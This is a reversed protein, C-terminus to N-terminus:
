AFNFEAFECSDDTAGDAVINGSISRRYEFIKDIGSGVRKLYEQSTERNGNQVTKTIINEQIKRQNRDKKVAEVVWQNIAGYHSKYYNAKKNLLFNSLKDVVENCFDVGYKQVLTQVENDSLFVNNHEGHIRKDKEKKASSKEKEKKTEELQKKLKENEFVLDNLEIENSIVKVNDSVSVSDNVNDSVSVNDNDAVNAVDQKCITANAVNAQKQQGGKAGALKRKEVVQEYKDKDRLFQNIFPAIAMKLAFDLKPLEGHLQYHYIAKIFEGAQENTMEDLICLSDLHLLFSNRM